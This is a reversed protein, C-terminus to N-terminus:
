KPNVHTAKGEGLTTSPSAALNATASAGGSAEARLEIVRSGTINGDKDRAFKLNPDREEEVRLQARMLRVQLEGM